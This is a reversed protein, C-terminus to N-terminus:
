LRRIEESRSVGRANERAQLAYHAHCLRRKAAAPRQAAAAGMLQRASVEQKDHKTTQSMKDIDSQWDAEKAHTAVQNRKASAGGLGAPPKGQGSAVSQSEFKQTEKDSEIPDVGFM